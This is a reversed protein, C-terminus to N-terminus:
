AAKHESTALRLEHDDLRDHISAIADGVSAFGERMEHRLEDIPGGLSATLSAILESTIETKIRAESQSLTARWFDKLDDLQEDTM